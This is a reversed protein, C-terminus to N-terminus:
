RSGSRDVQRGVLCHPGKQPLIGGHQILEISVTGLKVALAYEQRGTGIEDSPNYQGLVRADPEVNGKAPIYFGQGDAATGIHLIAAGQVGIGTVGDKDSVSYCNSVVANNM